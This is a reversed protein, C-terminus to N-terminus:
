ATPEVLAREYLLSKKNMGNTGQHILGGQCSLALAYNNKTANTPSCSSAMSKM